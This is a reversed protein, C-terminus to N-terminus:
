PVKIRRRRLKILVFLVIAMVVPLVILSPLLWWLLGTAEPGTAPTFAIRTKAGDPGIQYSAKDQAVAVVMGPKPAAEFLGDEVPSNLVFETVHVDTSGILVQPSGPAGRQTETWSDPWWGSPYERYKIDIQGVMEGNAFHRFRAIAGKRQTDVWYEAFVGSPRKQSSRLITCEHGDCSGHGHVHLEDSPISVSLSTPKPQEMFVVGHGFLFPYEVTFLYGYAVDSLYLDPQAWGPKYAASTNEQRPALTKTERGNCLYTRFDPIFKRDELLCVQSDRTLRSRNGALDFVVEWRIPHTYDSEPYPAQPKDDPEGFMSQTGKPVLHTGSAIYKVSRTKERRWRWDVLIQRLDDQDVAIAPEPALGAALVAACSLVTILRSM